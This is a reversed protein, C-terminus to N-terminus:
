KRKDKKGPVSKPAAAARSAANDAQKAKYKDGTGSSNKKPKKDGM